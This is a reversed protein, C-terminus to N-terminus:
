RRGRKLNTADIQDIIVQRGSETSGGAVFIGAADIGIALKVVVPSNDGRSSSGTYIGGGDFVGSPKYGPVGVRNFIDAGALSRIQAQHRPTLVMEDRHLIAPGGRSLGGTDFQPVLRSDIAAFRQADAAKREQQAILPPINAQYAKELDAVQNKLRSEVVSKTKLQSIQSKFPGLIQSDFISRAQSGPISGSAVGAILQDLAQLAQTLYQGSAEEDKRRQAAKGTFISGVLLAAGIGITFPNTFFATAAPGLAGAFGAVAGGALLGGASGFIQGTASQGGFSGGASLGILPAAGALSNGLSKFFGPKTAVGAAHVGEHAISGGGGFSTQIGFGQGFGFPGSVSAPVSIGGGAAQFLQNLNVPVNSGRGGGGFAFGGGGFLQAIPGLAQGVINQLSRGLLDNFLGLLANKLGNLLDKTNLLAQSVNQGFRDFADGVSIVASNFGRMFREATSISTGLRDYLQIEDQLDDVREAGLQARKEESDIIKRLQDAYDRNAAQSLADAQEPTLAGRNLLDGISRGSRNLDRRALRQQDTAAQTAAQTAARRAEEQQRVAQIIGQRINNTLTPAYGVLAAPDAIGEYQSTILDDATLPLTRIGQARRARATTDTRNKTNTLPQAGAPLEFKGTTSNYVARPDGLAGLDRVQGSLYPSDAVAKQEARLSEFRADLAKLNAGRADASFPNSFLQGIPDSVIDRAEAVIRGLAYFVDSKLLLAGLQGILKGIEATLATVEKATAIIDNRNEAFVRAASNGYEEIKKVADDFIPLLIKTLEQGLPELAVTVRDKLREFQAGIGESVQPFRENIAETIGKYYTEATLKGADKLKRLKDPDKTGFAKELLQEFIPLRTLAEKIDGREFGQDYIQQLNRAFDTGIGGFVANLKGLSQIVKNITQDTITGIARLQQYLQTAFSTTVGPSSAALQRLEAIKRNAVDVSGTLATIAQRTKDINIASQIAADAVQKLVYAGGLAAFATKLGGLASKMSGFSGTASDIASKFQRVQASGSDLASKVERKFEDVKAKLEITIGTAM